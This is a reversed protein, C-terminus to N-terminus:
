RRRRGNSGNGLSIKTVLLLDIISVDEGGSSVIVTRGGPTRWLLEPHTVAHNSGDALHLTFPRFPKAQHAANLQEITM